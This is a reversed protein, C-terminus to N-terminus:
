MPKEIVTADTEDHDGYLADLIALARREVRDRVQAFVPSGRVDDLLPCRDLWHLDFLGHNAAHIIMADCTARDGSYGALEAALQCQFAQRRQNATPAIALAVVRDRWATWAGDVVVARLPAGLGPHFSLTFDELSQVVATLNKSRRWMAFRIAFSARPSGLREVVEHLEDEVRAWDGELAHARVLAWRGSTSEPSIALADALRAAGAELFGAELLMRGLYEHPAAAYPALALASRFHRAAVVPDGTNLELQAAALQADARDRGSALAEAVLEGARALLAGDPDDRFFTHRVQAIALAATFRPEDPVLAHAREFRALPTEPDSLDHQEATRGRYFLDMAEARLADARLRAEAVAGAIAAAATDAVLEADEVTLPLEIELAEEGHGIRMCLGDDVILQVVTENPTNAVQRPRVRLRPQRALRELIAEHIGRAVHLLPSSGHPPLVVVSRVALGRPMRGAGGLPAADPLWRELLRQLESASAIRSRPDYATARAIAFALERPVDDSPPLVLAEVRNALDQTFSDSGAAFARRGTLMEYLLVGVAYVDTAPTAPEGRAQEPAMYGPTGAAEGDSSRVVAVGFDVLVVRGDRAVLVNGPKIDRHIVGVAHAAGLGECIAHAIAIAEARPLAGHKMRALLPEGDVLEMTYFALAGDRSLEYTRAVNRHTVRRALKVEQRFRAVAAPQAALARDILKLAVYEDLERDYACYVDGMGGAGVRSLLDYRGALTQGVLM